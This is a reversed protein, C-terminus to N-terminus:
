LNAPPPPLPTSTARFLQQVTSSKRSRGVVNRRRTSRGEGTCPANDTVLLAREHRGAPYRRALRTQHAAFAVQMRLTKRKGTKAQAGAPGGLTNTRLVGNVVEVVAPVDPLDRCDRTGLVPPHGEFGPTPVLNPVGPLRAGDRSLLVM